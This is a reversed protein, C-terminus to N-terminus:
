DTTKEEISVRWVPDVKYPKRVAGWPPVEAGLYIQPVLFVRSDFSPDAKTMMDTVVEGLTMNLLKFLEESCEWYRLIVRCDTKEYQGYGKSGHTRLENLVGELVEVYGWVDGGMAVDLSDICPTPPPNLMQARIKEISPKKASLKDPQKM